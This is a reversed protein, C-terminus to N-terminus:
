NKHPFIGKLFSKRHLSTMGHKRILEMHERTGYGKHKWFQYLPYKKSIKKMYEDRLVKACISALSIVRIKEDGRVITKQTIYKAPAKLSGDLYLKANHPIKLKVLGDDILKRIVIAIGEKDIRSSSGYMVIWDIKGLAKWIEIQQMWEKRARESLKKSDRLKLKKNQPRLIASNRIAFIGVSVPGAVPGRGAEDIGVVYSTKDMYDISADNPISHVIYTSVIQGDVYGNESNAEQRVKM